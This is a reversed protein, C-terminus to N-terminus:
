NRSYEDQNLQTYTVAKISQWFPIFLAGLAIHLFVLLAAHILGLIVNESAFLPSILNRLILSMLSGLMIPLAPIFMVGGLFM